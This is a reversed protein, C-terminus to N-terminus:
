QSLDTYLQLYDTLDSEANYTLVKKGRVKGFEDLLKKDIKEAGLTIADAYTAGGRFMGTNNAEKFPELDKEKLTAHINALKLFDLGFKEKFNNQGITYVVKSHTFVPEKKLSNEFLSTYPGDDM